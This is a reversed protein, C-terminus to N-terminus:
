VMEWQGRKTMWNTVVLFLYTGVATIVFLVVSIAAAFPWNLLESTYSWIAIPLVRVSYGTILVPVLYSSVALMFILTTSSVIGPMTLPIMINLFVKYNPAGLMRAAQMKEEPVAQISAALILIAYPLHIHILVIVLATVTKIFQLRGAILGFMELFQQILGYPLFLIAWGLTTVLMTVFLSMLFGVTLLTREIGYCQTLYYAVPYGLVIVGVTTLLGVKITVWIMNWFYIDGFFKVFNELTYIPLYIQNPDYKLFSLRFLHIMPLVFFVAILGIAPILPWMWKYSKVFTAIRKM